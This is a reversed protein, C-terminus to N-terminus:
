LIDIAVDVLQEVDFLLSDQCIMEMYEKKDVRDDNAKKRDSM